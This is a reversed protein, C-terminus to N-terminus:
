TIGIARGVHRITWTASQCWGNNALECKKRVTRLCMSARAVVTVPDIEKNPFNRGMMIKTETEKNNGKEMPKAITTLTAM